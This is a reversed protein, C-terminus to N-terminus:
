SCAISTSRVRTINRALCTWYWIIRLGATGAIWTCIEAGVLAKRTRWSAQVAWRSCDACCTLRIVSEDRYGRIAWWYAICRTQSTRGRKWRSGASCACYSVGNLVLIIRTNRAIRSASSTRAWCRIAGSTHCSIRETSWSAIEDTGSAASRALCYRCEAQSAKVAVHKVGCYVGAGQDAIWRTCCARDRIRICCTKRAVCRELENIRHTQRTGRCCIWTSSKTQITETVAYGACASWSAACASCSIGQAAEQIFAHLIGWRGVYDGNVAVIRTLCADVGIRSADCACRISFQSMGRIDDNPLAQTWGISGILTYSFALDWLGHILDM